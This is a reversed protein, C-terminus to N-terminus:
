KKLPTSNVAYIMFHDRHFHIVYNERFMFEITYIILVSFFLLWMNFQLFITFSSFTFFFIWRTSPCYLYLTLFLFLPFFFYLFFLFLFLMNVNCRGHLHKSMEIPKSFLRLKFMFTFIFLKKLIFFSLTTIFLTNKTVYFSFFKM